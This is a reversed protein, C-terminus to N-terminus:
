GEDIETEETTEEMLAGIELLDDELESVKDRLKWIYVLLLIIILLLIWVLYCCFCCGYGGFHNVSEAGTLKTNTSSDIQFTITLGPVDTEGYIGLNTDEEDEGREFQWRWSFYYNTIESPRLTGKHTFGNLASVPVWTNEDGLLYNGNADQLRIELPVVENTHFSQSPALLYDIYVEDENKLRIEYDMNTGPAVLNEGNM